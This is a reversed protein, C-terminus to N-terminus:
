NNFKEETQEVPQNTLFNLGSRDPKKTPVINPM